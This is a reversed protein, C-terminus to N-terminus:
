DRVCLRLADGRGIRWFPVRFKTNVVGFIGEAGDLHCLIPDNVRVIRLRVANETRGHLVNVNGSTRKKEKERVM